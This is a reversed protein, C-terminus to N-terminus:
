GLRQLNIYLYGRRGLVEGDVDVPSCTSQIRARGDRDLDDVAVLVLTCLLQWPQGANRPKWIVLPARTCVFERLRPGPSQSCSSFFLTIATHNYTVHCQKKLSLCRLVDTLDSVRLSACIFTALEAVVGPRYLLVGTKAGQLPLLLEM